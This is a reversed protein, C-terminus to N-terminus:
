KKSEEEKFEADFIDEKGKSASEEEAPKEAKPEAQAQQAQGQPKAQQKAATQKYVEEALKHSAQSLEEMKSKILQTDQGKM